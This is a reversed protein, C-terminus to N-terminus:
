LQGVADLEATTVASRGVACHQFVNPEEEKQWMRATIARCCLEATKVLKDCLPNFGFM